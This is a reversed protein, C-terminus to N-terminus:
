VLSKLGNVNMIEDSMAETWDINCNDMFSLVKLSSIQLNHYDALDEEVRMPRLNRM